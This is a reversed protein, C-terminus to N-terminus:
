RVRLIREVTSLNGQQLRVWYVGSSVTRGASDCGNWRLDYSGKALPGDHLSAVRRGRADYVALEAPGSAPVRFRIRASGTFPNPRPAALFFASDRPEDEDVSVPRQNSAGPTPTIYAAWVDGADPYRGESVDTTQPGFVRSDILAYGQAESGYLGIEEGNASLKIEAHLPGDEPDKDCWVVLYEGAAITMDPFEWATVDSLDDTLHLGDLDVPDPGPNYIEVWDEYEGSEDQIDSDNSALFENIYLVPPLAMNVDGPTPVSTRGWPGELDPMRAWAADADVAPYTLSDATTAGDPLRLGVWGGTAVLEFDAHLPGDEPEADCWVLARAYAALTTDPLAWGTSADILTVGDLSLAVPLPNVLELWPDRDGAEDLITSVNDPQLENLTLFGQTRPPLNIGDPTPDWCYDFSSAGDPYRAMSMDAFQRDFVVSDILSTGDPHFLGIEEGDDDLRFALHDCGQEVQGDAWLLIREGPPLVFGGTMAHKTPDGLDDTLHLGDLLLTDASGNYLEVWDDFEGFGDAVLGDNEAGFENVVLGAWDQLPTGTETWPLETAGGADVWALRYHYPRGPVVDTDVFAYDVAETTTDAGELRPDTQWSALSTFSTTDSESRFLVFGFNATEGRTSWELRIGAEQPIADFEVLELPARFEDLLADNQAAFVPHRTTVWSILNNTHNTLWNPNTGRWREGQYTTEPLREDRIATLRTTLSAVSLEGALLEAARDYLRFRFVSNRMLTNLMTCWRQFEPNWTWHGVPPFYETFEAQDAASYFRLHNATVNAPDMVDDYDWPVFLWKGGELRLNVVNNHFGNDTAVFFANVLVWDIYRDLDLEADIREYFAHSEPTPEDAFGELFDWWEQADGHEGEGDKLMIYDEDHGHTFEVWEEDLREWLGYFGWYEENLYVTVLANRSTMFGLDLFLGMLTPSNMIYRAYRSTRLIARRLVTPSSGFLDDDIHDVAGEHDFYLRLGKQTLYRTCGGNIRLGVDQEWALTHFEDYFDVSAYREWEVGKQLFNDYNGWVYIGTEPDWLGTSDTQIHIVPTTHLSPDFPWVPEPAAVVDITETSATVFSVAKPSTWDWTFLHEYTTSSTRVMSADPELLSIDESGIFTAIVSGEVISTDPSASEPFRRHSYEVDVTAGFVTPAALLFAVAICSVLLIFAGGRIMVNM